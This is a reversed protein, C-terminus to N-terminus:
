DFKIPKKEMVYIVFDCGSQGVSFEIIDIEKM